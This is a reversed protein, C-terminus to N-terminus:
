NVLFLTYYGIIRGISDRMSTSTIRKRGSIFYSLVDVMHVYLSDELSKSIDLVEVCPM